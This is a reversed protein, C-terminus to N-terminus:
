MVMRQSGAFRPTTTSRSPVLSVLWVDHHLAKHRYPRRASVVFDGATIWEAKPPGFGPPLGSGASFKFAKTGPEFRYVVGVEGRRPRGGLHSAVYISETMSTLPLRITSGPVLADAQERPLAHGSYRPSTQPRSSAVFSLFDRAISEHACGTARAPQYNPLGLLRASEGSIARSCDHSRGWQWHLDDEHQGDLLAKGIGLQQQIDGPSRQGKPYKKYAM